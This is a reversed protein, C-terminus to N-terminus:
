QYFALQFRSACMLDPSVHFKQPVRKEVIGHITSVLYDLASSEGLVFLKHIVTEFYNRALGKM